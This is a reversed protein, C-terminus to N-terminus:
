KKLKEIIKCIVQFDGACSCIIDEIKEKPLKKIDEYKDYIKNKINDIYDKNIIIYDDICNWNEDKNEITGKKNNYLYTNIKFKKKNIIMEKKNDEEVINIEELYEFIVKKNSIDFDFEKNKLLSIFDKEKYECTMIILKLPEENIKGHCLSFLNIYFEYKSNPKLNQIILKKCINIKDKPKLCQEENTFNIYNESPTNFSIIEQSLGEINLFMKDYKSSLILNGTNKIGFHFLYYPNKANIDLYFIINKQFFKCKIRNKFLNFEEEFYNIRNKIEKCEENQELIIRSIKDLDKEEQNIIKNYYENNKKIINLEINEKQIEDKIENKDLDYKLIQAERLLYNITTIQINENKNLPIYIKKDEDIITIKLILYFLDEQKDKVLSVRNKRLLNIIKNYIKEISNIEKFISDLESFKKEDLNNRYSHPLHGEKPILEIQITNDWKLNINLQYPIEEYEVEVTENLKIKSINKETDEKLETIPYSEYEKSIKINTFNDNKINNKLNINNEINEKEEEDNENNSINIKNSKM